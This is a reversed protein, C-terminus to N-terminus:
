NSKSSGGQQERAGSPPTSDEDRAFAFFGRLIGPAIVSAPNIRLTPGAVPGSVSFTVGILGENQGGLFAGIVPIQALLNNLAFLPIFTGRMDVAKRRWDIRGEFTTGFTSNRLVGDSFQTLGPARTYVVRMRDLTASEQAGLRRRTAASEDDPVPTAGFLRRLAEENVVQFNELLVVGRESRGQPDILTQTLTLKGGRINRYVDMFQLASGGDTSTILLYPRGSDKLIQGTIRASGPFRGNLSFDSIQRGDRVYDFKLDRVTAGNSGNAQELQVSLRFQKASKENPDEESMWRQIFPRADLSRGTIRLDTSDDRIEYRASFQDDPRLKVESLEYLVPKGGADLRARGKVSFGKGQFIIDELSAVQSTGRLSLSLTAPVGKTKEFSAEALALRTQTLDAEIRRTQESGLAERIFRFGMPGTVLSGFDFGLKARAPDDLEADARLVLKAKPNDQSATIKFPVGGLQCTGDVTLARGDSRAKFSGRDVDRGDVLAKGSINRFEADITFLGPLNETGPKGAYLPGRSQIQALGDGAIQRVDLGASKGLALGRKEGLELLSSAAGIMTADLQGISTIQDMGEAVFLVNPLLLVGSATELRGDRGEARVSTGTSKVVANAGTVPPLGAELLVAAGKAHWEGNVYDRKLPRGDLVGPPIDLSLHSKTLDGASVNAMFWDHADTAIFRPWVRRVSGAGINRAGIELKLGPIKDSFDISGTVDAVPLDGFVHGEVIDLRKGAVDFSGRMTATTVEPISGGQRDVTIAGLKLDLTLRDTTQVGAPLAITGSIMGGLGGIAILSPRITVGDRGEEVAVAIEGRHIDAQWGPGELAGDGSVRVIGEVRTMRGETALLGNMTVDLIVGGIKGGEEGVMDRVSITEASLQFPRGQDHALGIAIAAKWPGRAGTSSLTTTFAGFQTRHFGAGFREFVRTTSTREDTLTVTMDNLDLEALSGGGPVLTKTGFIRGLLEPDLLALVPTPTVKDSKEQAGGLAVSGDTSVTLSVSTQHAVLSVPEIKGLFLAPVDIAIFAKPASGVTLGDARIVKLDRVALRLHGDDWALNVAGIEARHGPGAADAIVTRIAKSMFSLDVGGFFIHFSVAAILLTTLLGFASAGVVCFTVVRRASNGSIRVEGDVARADRPPPVESPPPPLSQM